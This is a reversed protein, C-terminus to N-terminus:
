RWYPNELKRLCPLYGQRKYVDLHTYSVAHDGQEVIEGDDLVIIEDAEKLTSIRHSILITTRGQRVDRLSELIKEETETDVASFCDDLILIKPDKILARAITVRQKQGGSLTVGREGIVTDFGDPFAEIDDRVGAIEAVQVVDERSFESAGFGINQELTTSFLFNDQPVYGIDRRLVALPIKRIDTGDIFLEGPSPDWVRVLLNTLTSKGSGTRGLIGLTKGRPVNLTIGRLTPSSAEPYKFTLNRFEIEGSIEM